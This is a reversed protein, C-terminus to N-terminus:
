AVDVYLPNKLNKFPLMNNSFEAQAFSSYKLLETFHRHTLSAETHRILADSQQGRGGCVKRFVLLQGSTWPKRCTFSSPRFDHFFSYM